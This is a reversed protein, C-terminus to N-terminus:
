LALRTINSIVTAANTESLLLLLSVLVGVGLTCERGFGFQLFIDYRAINFQM